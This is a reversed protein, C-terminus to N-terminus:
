YISRVLLYFGRLPAQRDAELQAILAEQRRIIERAVEIGPQTFAWIDEIQKTATNEHDTILVEYKEIRWHLDDITNM